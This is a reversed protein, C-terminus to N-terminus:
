RKAGDAAAGSAQHINDLADSQATRASGAEADVAGVLHLFGSTLADLTETIQQRELRMQPGVQDAFDDGVNEQGWWYEYKSFEEDLLGRLGKIKAIIDGLPGTDFEDFNFEYGKSQSM